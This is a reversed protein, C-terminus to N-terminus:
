RSARRPWGVVIQWPYILQHETIRLYKGVLEEFMTMSWRQVHEPHNGCRLIYKGRLFNSIQFMPEWPVTLIIAGRVVRVMEKLAGGPDDLHELVESCVVIDFSKDGFPLKDASGVFGKAGRCRVKFETVAEKSIDIGTISLNPLKKKIESAIFGEGCGVDLISKPREKAVKAVIAQNLRVVLRKQLKNKSEHKLANTSRTARKEKLNKM